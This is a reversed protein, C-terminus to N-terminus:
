IVVLLIIALNKWAHMIFGKGNKSLILRVYGNLCKLCLCKLYTLWLYLLFNSDQRSETLDLLWSKKYNASLKYM